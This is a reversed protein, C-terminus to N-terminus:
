KNHNAFLTSYHHNHSSISVKRKSAAIRRDRNSEAEGPIQKIWIVVGIRTYTFMLVSLPLFYQLLMIIVTYSYRQASDPWHEECFERNIGNTDARTVTSALVVVPLTVSLALIWIIIIITIAQQRTIRPRLPYIVAIYRDISIAVLTFACLFVSVGQAYLVIPCMIAGFPWYHMLVNAIFTFPICLVASLTDGLALNCIFLNTVTNLRLYALIIYIVTVNGGISVITLTSYMLIILAQAYFSMTSHDEDITANYTTLIDTANTLTNNFLCLTSNYGLANDDTLCKNQLFMDYLTSTTTSIIDVSTLNPSVTVNLQDTTNPLNTTYYDPLHSTFNSSVTTTNDVITSNIDPQVM